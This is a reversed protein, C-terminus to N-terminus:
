ELSVAMSVVRGSFVLASLPYTEPPASRHEAILIAKRDQFVCRRILLRGDPASIAYINGSVLPDQRLHIRAGEPILPEMSNDAMTIGLLTKSIEDFYSEKFENLDTDQKAALRSLFELIEKQTLIRQVLDQDSLNIFEQEIMQSTKAPVQETLSRATKRFFGLLQTIFDQIMPPAKEIYGAYLLEDPSHGCAEAIAINVEDSAPSYNGSQLKSIYSPDVKVGNEKCKQSIERLTMGSQLVMKSLLEHYRM